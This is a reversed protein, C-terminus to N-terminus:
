PSPFIVILATFLEADLGKLIPLVMLFILLHILSKVSTKLWLTPFSVTIMTTIFDNIAM